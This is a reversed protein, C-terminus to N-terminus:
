ELRGQMRELWVKKSQPKVFLAVIEPHNQKIKAEIRNVCAEIEDTTLHDEFEVSLSALVQKAGMQETLLGNASLVGEDDQAIKLINQRVHLDATEGLLLGKTERALLFASVALVLGILISAVGDLAPMNLRHALYIGLFAILLGILAASDEFLVTFTTPDKSRRFAEFYGQQGKAKRFVKLAVCWSIGESVFAFGLVVYNITPNLIPEPHLIHMIGNYM